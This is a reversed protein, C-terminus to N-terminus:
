QHPVGAGAGLAAHCVVMCWTCWTPACVLTCPLGSFCRLSQSQHGRAASWSKARALILLPLLRGSGKIWGTLLWESHLCCSLGAWGGAQSNWVGQGTVAAPSQQRRHQFTGVGRLSGPATLFSHLFFFRVLTPAAVPYIGKFRGGRHTELKKERLDWHFRKFDVM